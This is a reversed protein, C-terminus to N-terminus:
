RQQVVQRNRESTGRVGEKQVDKIQPPGLVHMPTLYRSSLHLKPWWPYATLRDYWEFFLLTVAKGWFIPGM